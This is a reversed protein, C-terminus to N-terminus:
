CTEVGNRFDLGKAAIIGLLHKKLKKQLGILSVMQNSTLCSMVEDAMKQRNPLTEEIFAIGKRTITINKARRDGYIAERKVLGERVLKDVVRTTSYKSRFVRKSIDTLTLNGKHTILANLIRFRTRSSESQKIEIRECELVTEATSIISVLANAKLDDSLSLIKHSLFDIKDQLEKQLFTEQTTKNATMSKTAAAVCIIV